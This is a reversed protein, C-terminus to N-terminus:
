AAQKPAHQPCFKDDKSIAMTHCYQDYCIEKEEGWSPGIAGDMRFPLYPSTVANRMIRAVAKVEAVNNCSGGLMDHVSAAIWTEPSQEEVAVMWAKMMDAASGQILMNLCKWIWDYKGNPKIPLHLHRGLLTIIEGYKSGSQKAADAIEKLFPARAHFKALIEKGEKGACEFVEATEDQLSQCYALAKWEEPFYEKHKDRWTGWSVCFQTPLGLTRCLKAEGMSYCLGLYINKALKRPLGTLNAMFTHNDLLENDRFANAAELAGTCGRKAAYHTTLRPEQQSADISFWQMGPEPIFISKWMPAFDQRSPMQTLNIHDASFRGTRAGKSEPDDEDKLREDTGRLQNYSCHLRNNIMHEYTQKCFTNRLKNVQRARAMQPGGTTKPLRELWADKISVGGKKTRPATVGQAQLVADLSKPTTCEDVRLERGTLRKIELLNRKEEELAWMEVEALKKVDVPMGRERMKVLIPIIKQELLYLDWTNAKVLADSLRPLLALPGRLDAENYAGVFHGPLKWMEGAPNKLGHNKAAELLMAKDKGPVKWRKCVADLDCQHHLEYLLTDAHLVDRFASTQDKIKYRSRTWGLDYGINAGTWIGTFASLNDTFWRWAAEPNEVNGGGAHKVPLYIATGDELGVGIGCVYSDPRFQGPGLDNNLGEDRAELDISAIKADRWNPWDSPSKPKWTCVTEYLPLQM